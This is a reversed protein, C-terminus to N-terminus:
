KAVEECFRMLITAAQARTANGAPKLMTDTVGTILGEGNAWKMATEAYASIQAADAYGSLDATATVDIKKYQAYRYLIAAFQERTISDDPGFKEESYGTVIDNASAWAVANAYYQDAAVDAFGAGNDVAPEKELRYLITVIMGRTTTGNPHFTTESTGNMMGNDVAYQVADAFWDTTLVDTFGAIQEPKEESKTFAASVSVESAPMTFTYKGDEKETVSIEKGDKDTVTLQDLQYGKDPKVTLTVTSGKSSSKVSATVTGNDTDEVTVAYTTVSGGGGSSPRTYSVERKGDSAILYEKGNVTVKIENDTDNKLTITRSNGSMDASLGDKLVTVTEGDKAADLADELTNYRVGNLVAEAAPEKTITFESFGHPNTFTATYNDGTNMVEAIYEYGKHQVYVDDASTVFKAPLPIFVTTTGKIDLPRAEEVVDEEGGSVVVIKYVPTINLKYSDESYVEPKIDLYARVEVKADDAESFKSNQKIESAQEDSIQNAEAAAAASIEPVAINAAAKKVAEVADEPIEEPLDSVNSEGVAPEVPVTTETKKEVKYAYGNKDSAVAIYGDATYESPDSTFYGGSIVINAEELTVGDESNSDAFVVNFNGNKIELKTKSKWDKQQVVAEQQAGYEIKGQVTGTFDDDVTVTIGDYYISSLGYWLDFAAQGPYAYINTDGKLTLSGFNNSSVYQCQPAESADLTVDELILDCYNQFMIKLESYDSAKVTGNRITVTSGKLLQFGNTETGASGVTPSGVTYTHGNLDLVVNQQDKVQVGGGQTDKLLTITTKTNDAPIQAFAAGLTAYYKEGVQAVANEVTLPVVVGEHQIYGDAVFASVDTSFEGGTISINANSDNHKAVAANDASFIGGSISVVPSQTSRDYVGYTSGSFKGGTITLTGKDMEAACGCNDVAYTIKGSEAATFTGETIKAVNHNQVMAQAYNMFIGGNIELEGRDDNKITNLGGIFTGGEIVMKPTNTKGAGNYYGNEVLSSFQGKGDPGQSVSVGEFVTMTGYNQLTYFSNGGSSEASNGAEKSRTFSGGRLTVEADEANHLAAKAHTVNDVTGKGEDSSDIITLTGYNAITHNEVNTLTHGNLDLTLTKEKAITIDENYDKELKITAGDDLANIQAQLTEASVDTEAFATPVMTLVMCLSILLSLFKRKM